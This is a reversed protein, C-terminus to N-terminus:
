CPGPLQVETKCPFGLDSLQNALTDRLINHRQYVGCAKCTLAHDGYRDQFQGCGNCNQPLPLPIGLHFQLVARWDATAWKTGPKSPTPTNLWLGANTGAFLERLRRMRLPLSESLIRVTFDHGLDSWTKQKCWSDFDRHSKADPDLALGLTMFSRLTQCLQHAAPDM